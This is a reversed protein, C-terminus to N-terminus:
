APVPSGAAPSPPTPDPRAGVEPGPRAAPAPKRAFRLYLTPILFLSVLATTVLGGLIIAALPQVSELGSVAGFFALPALAVGAGLVTTLTPVFRERSGTVVLDADLRGADQVLEEYRRIQLIAHRVIVALVALIGLLAVTSTSERLVVAVIAAGALAVPLLLFLLSALRWSGFCAQLIFFIAIVVGLTYLLSLRGANQRGMADGMVELHHERPFTVSQLRKEVDGTVAGLSRGRVDAVVDISRSVTNHTVVNPNPRINVEAVDGLRVQGTPTDVMLERLSAASNRTEPTGWVVVDFVKQQEFLSGATIGSLYTAAARRVDGPAIGHRAAAAIAVDVEVTPETTPM